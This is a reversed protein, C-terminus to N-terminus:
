VRRSKPSFQVRWEASSFQHSIPWASSLTLLMDRNASAIPLRLAGSTANDYNLAKTYTRGRVVLDADVRSLNEYTITVDKVMCRSEDTAYEGGGKSIRMYPVSMTFSATVPIGATVTNSATLDWTVKYTNGSVPTVQHVVTSGDSEFSVISPTLATSYPLTFQTEGNSYSLSLVSAGVARDVIVRNEIEESINIRELFVGDSRKILIYLQEDSFGAWFIDTCDPLGWRVWASQVKKEGSWYMKYIFLSTPDTSTGTVILNHRPSGVLIRVGSKVLQPVPDTVEAAEDASSNQKPFYEYMKAYDYGGGDDIFYISGQMPVPKVDRAVNYATTFDVKINKPGVLQQYSMRHQSRDGVLLVDKNFPTAHRLADNVTSYVAIDVPDSDLLTAITTRMYNEFNGAESLIVNDETIFGIRNTYLFMDQIRYGVFSPLPNSDVDGVTRKVWVHQKFTWTGDANRVLVHPMTNSALGGLQNYGYTEVWRGEVYVVYYDDQAEEPAGKVRVLRGDAANPPLDSFSGIEDRFVKMVKDGNSTTCTVRATDTLGYIELTSGYRTVSVGAGNLSTKLNSAIVDTGQVSNAADTGNATLFTAKLVGDIYISYNVNAISNTIHVTARDAPNLRDGVGSVVQSLTRWRWTYTDATAAQTQVAKYYQITYGGNYDDVALRYLQGLLPGTPLSWGDFEDGPNPPPSSDVDWEIIEPEGPVLVCDYYRGDATTQYVDGLLGVAAAPLSAYTSVTGDPVFAATGEEGIFDEGVVVDRNMIFTTDEFTAFRFKNLVNATTALYAKGNPFSVTQEIGSLSFVRLNGDGVIVIYKYGTDRDILHAVAGGALSFGLNKIHETPSRPTLGKVVSPWYNVCDELSTSLRLSTPQQSIGSVLNPISLTTLM